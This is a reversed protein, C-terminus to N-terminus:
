GVLHEARDVAAPDPWFGNGIGFPLNRRNELVKREDNTARGKLSAIYACHPCKAEDGGCFGDIHATTWQATTVPQALRYGATLRWGICADRFTYYPAQIQEESKGDLTRRLLAYGTSSVTTLDTIRLDTPPTLGV